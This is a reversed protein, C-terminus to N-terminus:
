VVVIRRHRFTTANSADVRLRVNGANIDVDFDIGSINAGIRLSSMVNFDVISTGDHMAHIEVGRHNAAADEKAYVHWKIINGFTIPVSDLTTVATIGAVTGSPELNDVYIELADLDASVTAIDAANILIDGEAIDLDGSVTFLNNDLLTLDAGVNNGLIYNGAALSGITTELTDLDGSVTFLNNDLFILDSAIEVGGVYNGASLVGITNNITTIDTTNQDIAASLASIDLNNSINGEHLIDYFTAGDETVQWTDSTENFILSVGSLTGRDIEIGASGLTIGAGTEGNNLTITNDTILLDQSSLTTTTGLVTFDANVIVDDNFTKIGSISENGTTHVYDSEVFDTIDAKVHTHNVFEGSLAILDGSVTDIDTSNTNIDTTNQDIAASLAAIDALSGNGLIEWDTNTAGNKKYVDGNSRLFLSGFDAAIGTVSPDFTGNLIQAEVGSADSIINFGREASFYNLAM